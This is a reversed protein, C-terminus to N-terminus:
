TLTDEPLPADDPVTLTITLVAGSRDTRNAAAITGGMAEVFGRCIALGLGTGARRRDAGRGRYFKDFVRELDDPQIGDGEDLVQIRVLKGHRSARLGITTGAPAYKAANDLLNFLVQEFLVMDLRLMPLGSALDVDLKHDALVKAARQLAAGVVDSLM